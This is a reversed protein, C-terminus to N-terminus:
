WGTLLHLGEYKQYEGFFPLCSHETFKLSVSLWLSNNWCISSLQVSDHFILQVDNLGVFVCILLSCPLPHFTPRM